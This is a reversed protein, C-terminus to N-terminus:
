RSAVEFGFMMGGEHHEAIYCHAMWTGPHTVELLIDVTEGTTVLVTDKWVLNTEVVGDRALVLFRGAGHFHFPHPMPHDSGMANVLRIKVRDGVHLRWDIVGNAKGTARDIISWRMTAPTSARNFAVMDDEWEFRPSPEHTAPADNPHAHGHHGDHRHAPEADAEAPVLKMGCEPCRGPEHTVVEPHMPCTFTTMGAADPTDMSAVFALTRDPAATVYQAIGARVEVLETSTRLTEFAAAPGPAAPAEVVRVRALRYTQRPTRHVLELDGAQAFFVDVVVRESPAILVDNVFREHEVRGRDGGVLKM